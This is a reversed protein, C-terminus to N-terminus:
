LADIRRRARVSEEKKPRGSKRVTPRPSPRPLVSSSISSVKKKDALWSKVDVWDFLVRTGLKISLPLDKRTSLRNYITQEALGLFQALEQVSLMKQM